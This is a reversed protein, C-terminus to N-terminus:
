FKIPLPLYAITAEIPKQGEPIEFVISGRVSEEPLLHEYSGFDGILNRVESQTSERPNHSEIEPSRVGGSINKYIYGKDTAVEGM